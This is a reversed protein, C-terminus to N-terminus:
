RDGNAEHAYEVEFSLGARGPFPSTFARANFVNM